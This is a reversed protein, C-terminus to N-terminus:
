TAAAGPKAQSAKLSHAYAVAESVIEEVTAQSMRGSFEQEDFHNRLAARVRTHRDVHLPDLSAGVAHRLAEAAGFLRAASNWEGTTTALEALVLCGVAIRERFGLELNLPFSLTFWEGAGGLDGRQFATEALGGLAVGELEKVGIERAIGLCEEFLAAASEFDDEILAILALNNLAIALHALRGHRRALQMAEEFLVRARENDRRTMVVGGLNLLVAGLLESDDGLERLLMLAENYHLEAEDLLGQNRELMGLAKLAGARLEAPQHESERLAATLWANGESLYGRVYWFRGLARGLRLALQRNPQEGAYALAARLNDHERALTALSKEAGATLLTPELREALALYYEAHLLRLADADAGRLREQAYERITELMRFRPEDDAESRREILSSDVLAAITDVDAGCIAEAADISWTGVFVALEAFLKQADTDLLDYSWAITERLTRQRRPADNPGAGLVDLRHEFRTLLASPSFLKTRAAALELALPLGDLARCIESVAEANRETLRFDPSVATARKVFLQVAESRGASEVDNAQPLTLPALSYEHEGALHLPTRSTVLAKVNPAAALVEAVTQAAEPLHEFNDLVLLLRRDRLSRKLADVSTSGADEGSRVAAAIAPAVLSPDSLPALEVFFAGDFDGCMIEACALALRTKGTGGTGTITLLRVDDRRLLGTIAALELGRGILASRPSPLNTECAAVETAAVLTQDHKLIARELDRLEESPELGLEAFSTRADRYAALADPQRGARYLALMLQSRLRERFPHESILAEIDGVLEASKGAALDADFREEIASLRAEELRGAEISIPREDVLGDLADGRWLALAERYREAAEDPRRERMARATRVLDDFRDLDLECPEVRLAYGSGETLIRDRGVAKRLTHVYVQLANAANEPPDDGWLAGILRERAVVVNAHLLLFALLTRAKRGDVVVHEDGNRVVELAGLIRFEFREM